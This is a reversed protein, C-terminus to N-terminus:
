YRSFDSYRNESQREVNEADSCIEASVEQPVDVNCIRFRSVLDKLIHSQGSLEESAAASEEATASNNQVVASIQEVGQTIQKIASDQAKSNTAVQSAQDAVQGIITNIRDLASATEDAISSGSEVAQLARSILEGTNKSAEATNAALRRVEDAVVAFGKGATGARAAEVAANLALINTQFAIDEISKIIKGIEASANSINQMATLMEKMRETGLSVEKVTERVNEETEAILRTNKEVQHSVDELTAALEQVSSAQETSGQSLAQAGNAVQEAGSSVESSATHIQGMIDNLMQILRYVSDRLYRYEGEYQSDDSSKADFQGEAIAQLGVELDKTIFSIRNVVQQLSQALVGFEDKADYQVVANTFDGRVLAQSGEMLKKAPVMIHRLMLGTLVVVSIMAVVMISVLIGIAAIRTTKVLAEQGVAHQNITDNLAIIMDAAENFAPACNDLYIDYAKGAAEENGFDKSLSMIQTNYEEVGQLKERIAQVTAAYEPEIAAITDLSDYLAQQDELMSEEVRQYDTIDDAIIANLLYRRVSVMNRRALGTQEVMPVIQEVYEVSKKSMMNIVSLSCLGMLVMYLFIIGFSIWLKWKVQLNKM